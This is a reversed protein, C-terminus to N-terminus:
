EYYEDTFLQDDMAKIELQLELSKKNKKLKHIEKAMELIKENAKNLDLEYQPIERIHSAMFTKLEAYILIILILLIMIVAYVASLEVSM